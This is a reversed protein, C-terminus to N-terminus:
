KKVGVVYVIDPPSISWDSLEAGDRTEFKKIIYDEPAGPLGKTIFELKAVNAKLTKIVTTTGELTYHIM